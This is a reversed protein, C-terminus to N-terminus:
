AQKLESKQKKTMNKSIKLKNLKLLSNIEPKFYFPENRLIQICQFQTSTHSFYLHFCLRDFTLVIICFLYVIYYYIMKERRHLPLVDHPFTPNYWNLLCNKNNCIFYQLFINKPIPVSQMDKCQLLHMPRVSAGM